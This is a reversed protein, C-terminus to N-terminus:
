LLCVYFLIMVNQLYKIVFILIILINWQFYMQSPNEKLSVLQREKTIEISNGCFCIINSPHLLATNYMKKLYDPEYIIDDDILFVFDNIHNKFVEYRKYPYINEKIWHIEIFGEDRFPKLSDPINEGSYEDSSLWCYIKDPKITQKKFNELMKAACNHRKKWTTFSVILKPKIQNILEEYTKNYKNKIYERILNISKIRRKRWAENYISYPNNSERMSKHLVNQIKLMYDETVLKYSIGNILSAYFYIDDDNEVLDIYMM